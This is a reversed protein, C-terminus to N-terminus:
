ILLQIAEHREQSIRKSDKESHIFNHGFGILRNAVHKVARDDHDAAKPQAPHRLIQNPCQRPPARFIQRGDAVIHAHITHAVPQQQRRPLDHM